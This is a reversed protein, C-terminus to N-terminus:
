KKPRQDVHLKEKCNLSMIWRSPSSFLCTWSNTPAKKTSLWNRKFKKFSFTPRRSSLNKLSIRITLPNVTVSSFKKKKLAKRIFEEAKYFCVAQIWASFNSQLCDRDNFHLHSCVSSINPLICNKKKWGGLSIKPQCTSCPNCNSRYFSRVEIFNSGNKFKKWCIKM